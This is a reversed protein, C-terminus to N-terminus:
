GEKPLKGAAKLIDFVTAFKGDLSYGHVRDLKVRGGMDQLAQAFATQTSFTATQTQVLKKAM